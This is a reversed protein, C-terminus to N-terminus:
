GSVIPERQFRLDIFPIAEDPKVDTFAPSEVILTIVRTDWDYDVDVVSADPVPCAPVAAGTGHALILEVLGCSVQIRRIRAM